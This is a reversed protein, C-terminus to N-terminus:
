MGGTHHSLPIWGFVVGASALTFAAGTLLAFREGKPLTKEILTALAIAAMWLSNM